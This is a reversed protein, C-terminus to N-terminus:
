RSHTFYPELASFSSAIFPGRPLAKSSRIYSIARKRKSNYIYYNPLGKVMYAVKSFPLAV